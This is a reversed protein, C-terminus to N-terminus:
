SGGDVCLQGRLWEDEVSRDDDGFGLHGGSLAGYARLLRAADVVSVGSALVLDNNLALDSHGITPSVEREAVLFGGPLPYTRSRHDM